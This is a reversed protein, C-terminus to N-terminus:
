DRNKRSAEFAERIIHSQRDAENEQRAIKKRIRQIQKLIDSRVLNEAEAMCEAKVIDDVAEIRVYGGGPAKQFYKQYKAPLDEYEKFQPEAEGTALNYTQYKKPNFETDIM